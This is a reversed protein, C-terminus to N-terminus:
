ENILDVEIKTFVKKESGYDDLYFTVDIYDGDIMENVLGTKDWSESGKKSVSEIWDDGNLTHTVFIKYEIDSPVQQPISFTLANSDNVKLAKPIRTNSDYNLKETLEIGLAYSLLNPIGRKYPDATPLADDGSM